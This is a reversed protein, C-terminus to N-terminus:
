DLVDMLTQKDYLDANGLHAGLLEAARERGLFQVTSGAASETLNKHFDKGVLEWEGDKGEAYYAITLDTILKGDKDYEVELFHTGDSRSILKWYDASADYNGAVYGAFISNDGLHQSLKYATIDTALNETMQVAKGDGLMQLAMRTHATSSYTQQDCTKQPM